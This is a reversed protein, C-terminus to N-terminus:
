SESVLMPVLIYDSVTIHLSQQPLLMKLSWNLLVMVFIVFNDVVDCEVTVFRVWGLM